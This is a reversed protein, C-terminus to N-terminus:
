GPDALFAKIAGETAQDFDRKPPLWPMQLKFLMDTAAALRDRVAKAVDKPRDAAGLEEVSQRYERYSTVLEPLGAKRLLAFLKAVQRAGRPNAADEADIEFLHQSDAFYLEVTSVLAFLRRLEKKAEAQDLHYNALILRALPQGADLLRDIQAAIDDRGFTGQFLIFCWRYSRVLEALNVQEPPGNGFGNVCRAINRDSLDALQNHDRIPEGTLHRVLAVYGQDDELIVGIPGPNAKRFADLTAIQLSSLNSM